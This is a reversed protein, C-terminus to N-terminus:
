KKHQKEIKSSVKNLFFLFDTFAELSILHYTYFPIWHNSTKTSRGRKWSGIFHADYDSCHYAGQQEEEEEQKEDPEEDAAALLLAVLLLCCIFDPIVDCSPLTQHGRTTIPPFGLDSCGRISAGTKVKNECPPHGQERSCVWWCASWNGTLLPIGYGGRPATCNLSPYGTRSGRIPGWRWRQCCHVSCPPLCFKELIRGDTRIRRRVAPHIIRQGVTYFTFYSFASNPFHEKFCPFSQNEGNLCLNLQIKIYFTYYWLNIYNKSTNKKKKGRVHSYHKNKNTFSFLDNIKLLNQTMEFPPDSQPSNSVNPGHGGCLRITDNHVSGLTELNNVEPTYLVSVLSLLRSRRVHRSSRSLKLLLSFYIIFIKHMLPWMCGKILFFLM